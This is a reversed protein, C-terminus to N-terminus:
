PAYHHPRMQMPSGGFALNHKDDEDAIGFAEKQLGAYLNLREDERLFLACHKLVTNLYLNLYEDELWSIDAVAYNPIGIRYALTMDAPNSVSLDPAVLRLLFTGAQRDVNYYPYVGGSVNARKGYLDALTTLTMTNGRGSGSNIIVAQAAQFDPVNATLDYDQSTPAIVAVANRRQWTRTLIDLEDNAQQILTDLNAALVTDNERWLSTTVYTKFQTYTQGM